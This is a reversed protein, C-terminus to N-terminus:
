KKTEPILQLVLTTIKFTSEYSFLDSPFLPWCLYSSFFFLFIFVLYPSKKGGLQRNVQCIWM